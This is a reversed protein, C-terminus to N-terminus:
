HSSDCHWCSGENSVWLECWLGWCHLTLDWMNDFICYKWIPCFMPTPFMSTSSHQQLTIFNIICWMACWHDSWLSVTLSWGWRCNPAFKRDFERLQTPGCNEQKLFYGHWDMGFLVISLSHINHKMRSTRIIEFESEYKVLDLETNTNMVPEILSRAKSVKWQSYIKIISM